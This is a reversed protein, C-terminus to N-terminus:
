HYMCSLAHATTCYLARYRECPNTLTAFPKALSLCHQKFLSRGRQCVVDRKAELPKNTDDYGVDDCVNDYDDDGDDDNRMGDDDSDDDDGDDDSDDDDCSVVMMVVVLVVM